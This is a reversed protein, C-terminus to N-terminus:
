EPIYDCFNDKNYYINIPFETIQMVDEGINQTLTKILSDREEAQEEDGEQEDEFNIEEANEDEGVGEEDYEEGEVEEEGKEEEENENKFNDSIMVNHRANEDEQEEEHQNENQEENGEDQHEEYHLDDQHNLLPDRRHHVGGNDPSKESGAINEDAKKIEQSELINNIEEGHELKENKEETEGDKHQIEAWNGIEEKNEM